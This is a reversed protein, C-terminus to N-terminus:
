REVDVVGVASCSSACTAAHDKPAEAYTFRLTGSAISGTVQQASTWTCGDSWPFQTGTCATVNGDREAGDFSSRGFTLKAAGDSSCPFTLTGRDGVSIAADTFCSPSSRSLSRVVVARTCMPGSSPSTIPPACIAPSSSAADHGGRMGHANPHPANTRVHSPIRSAVPSVDHEDHGQQASAVTPAPASEEAIHIEPTPEKDSVALRTSYSRLAALRDSEIDKPSTHRAVTVFLLGIVVHLAASALWPAWVRVDIPGRFSVREFLDIVELSVPADPPLTAIDPAQGEGLTQTGVVDGYWRVIVLRSPRMTHQVCLVGIRKTIRVRTRMSEFLSGFHSSAPGRSVIRTSDNMSAPWKDRTKVTQEGRSDVGALGV